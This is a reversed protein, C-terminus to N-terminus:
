IVDKPVLPPLDLVEMQTAFFSQPLSWVHVGKGKVRWFMKEAKLDTLRLTIKNSTYHTFNNVQLHKRVDKIQFYVRDDVWAAIGQLIEERTDGRARDCCFSALLDEFEGKITADPPVEVVTLNDLLTQM